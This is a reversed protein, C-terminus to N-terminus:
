VSVTSTINIKATGGQDCGELVKGIIRGGVNRMAVTTIGAIEQRPAQMITHAMRGEFSALNTQFSVPDIAKNQEKQRSGFYNNTDTPNVFTSAITRKAVNEYKIRTADSIPASTPVNLNPAVRLLDALRGIVVERNGKNVDDASADLANRTVPLERWAAAQTVPTSPDREYLEVPGSAVPGGVADAVPGLRLVGAALLENVLNLGNTICNSICHKAAAKVPFIQENLEPDSVNEWETPNEICNQIAAYVAEAVSEPEVKRLGYQLQRSGEVVRAYDHVPEGTETVDPLGVGVVDGPFLKDYARVRKPGQVGGAFQPKGKTLTEDSGHSAHAICAFKTLSEEIVRKETLSLGKLSNVFQGTGNPHSRVYMNKEDEGKTIVCITNQVVEGIDAPGGLHQVLPVGPLINAAQIGEKGHYVQTVIEGIDQPQREAM